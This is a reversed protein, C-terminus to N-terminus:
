RSRWSRPPPRRRRPTTERAEPDFSTYVAEARRALAGVAGGLEEYSAFDIVRGRCREFLETLAYQLLPLAAAHDAVDTAIQAVLGPEFRVGRLAAPQEIARQLEEPAMATVLETGRRLLEGFRHHQLPRDYFDARLTIVVRLRSHWDDIAAALSDLFLRCTSPLALTFLEEFQDIVLLVQSRDAPLVSRVARGLGGAGDAINELLDVPPDVAIRL